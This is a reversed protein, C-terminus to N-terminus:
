AQPQKQDKKEEKEPKYKENLSRIMFKARSSGLKAAIQMNDWAQTINGLNKHTLALNFYYDDKLTSNNIVKLKKAKELYYLSTEYDQSGIYYNSDEVCRKLIYDELKRTALEKNIKKRASKHNELKERIYVLGEELIRMEAELSNRQKSLEIFYDEDFKIKHSKAILKAILKPEENISLIDIIEKFEKNYNKPVHEVNEIQLDAETFRKSKVLAYLMLMELNLDKKKIKARTQELIDLAMAVKHEALFAKAKAIQSHKFTFFHYSLASALVILGLISLIFIRENKPDM